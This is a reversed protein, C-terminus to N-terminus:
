LYGLAKLRELTEADEPEAARERRHLRHGDRILWADLAGRLLEVEFHSEGARSALNVLEGPDSELAFVSEADRSRGAGAGMGWQLGNRPAWILKFRPSRVPYIGGAVSAAASLQLREGLEADSRAVLDAGPLEPRVAAGAAALLTRHLDLTTTPAAIRRPAIRGPSWLVLPIRTLEDYLTYGHLVGGHELLEEGHDATVAVLLDDFGRRALEGLFRGLEADAYAVSARYLARIRDIEAAGVSRRRDRIAYLTANTGDIEPTGAPAPSVLEAPPSYPSHPNLVHLYLFARDEAGLRELWDLAAAVVRASHDNVPAGPGEAWRVPPVDLYDDFGRGTGYSPGVYPNGSFLATRYGAARLQEGLTPAGSGELRDHGRAGPLEGTLLAKTSPLTNPAVSAHHLAALGEAAIRDFTPTSSSQPGPPAGLHGVYDGRLADLVYLVVLRPPAASSPLNARASDEPAEAREVLALGRWTAAPGQGSAALRVRLFGNVRDLPLRVAQAGQFRSLWTSTWRFEGLREGDASEVVLEFRQGSRADEPPEFQAVVAEAAEARLYFDLASWGSQRWADGERVCAGAPAAPRVAGAVVGVDGGRSVADAPESFVLEVGVKGLPLTDSLEGPLDIGLPDDAPFPGLTRGGIKATVTGGGRTLDLELRRAGPALRVLELRAGNANPVLFSAGRDGGKREARWGAVFRNGHRAPPWAVDRAEVLCQPAIEVGDLPRLTGTEPPAACGVAVASVLVATWWASRRRGRKSLGHRASM